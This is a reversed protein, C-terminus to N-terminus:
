QLSGLDAQILLLVSDLHEDHLIITHKLRLNYTEWRLEPM